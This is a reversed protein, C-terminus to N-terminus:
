IFQVSLMHRFQWARQLFCLTRTAEIEDIETKRKLNQTEGTCAHATGNQAAKAFHEDTVRLYHKWAIVEPTGLRAGGIPSPYILRACSPGNDDGHRRQLDM